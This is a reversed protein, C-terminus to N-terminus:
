AYLSSYDFALIQVFNRSFHGRFRGMIWESKLRDRSTTSLCFGGKFRKLRLLHLM